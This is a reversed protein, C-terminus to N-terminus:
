RVRRVVARMARRGARLGGVLTNAARGPVTASLVTNIQRLRKLEAERARVTQEAFALQARAEALERTLRDRAALLERVAPVAPRAPRAPVDAPELERGTMGALVATLRAEDAPSPWLRAHGGAIVAAAFARLALLPEGAPALGTLRGDAAIVVRDAPVGAAPGSQWATLLERLAPLDRRQAAALLEDILARGRPLDDADLHVARASAGDALVADPAAVPAPGSGTPGSGPMIVADPGTPGTGPMRTALVIWAPALDAALGNRLAGTALRGPDALPLGGAVPACGDALAATLFGTLSPAALMEPSLLAGPYAAYHRDVHLGAGTLATLLRTRGAPRSPDRDDAVVWEADSLDPPVSVLRHLGFLNEVTLLLRGGPNLVALLHGLVDTWARDEAEASLLRDLGDFAVVTDFVPAAALKDLSGCLVTVGPCRAALTEADAVGRVLVTTRAAPLAAILAPDHPGAVLTRGTVSGLLVRLLAGDVLVSGGGPGASGGPFSGASSSGVASSGVASSGVASSGVASSGVASSGVADGAPVSGFRAAGAPAPGHTGDLDSWLLMEGGIPTTM